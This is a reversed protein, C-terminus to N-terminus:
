ARFFAGCPAVESSIAMMLSTLFTCPLSMSSSTLFTMKSL